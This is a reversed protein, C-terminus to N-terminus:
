YITVKIKDSTLLKFDGAILKLQVMCTFVEQDWSNELHLVAKGTTLLYVIDKIIFTKQWDYVSQEGM